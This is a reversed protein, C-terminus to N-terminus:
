LCCVCKLVVVWAEKIHRMIKPSILVFLRSLISRQHSDSQQSPQQFFAEASKLLDQLSLSCIFPTTFYLVTPVHLLCETDSARIYLESQERCVLLHIESM